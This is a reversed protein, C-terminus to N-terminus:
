LFVMLDFTLFFVREFPNCITVSDMGATRDTEIPMQSRVPERCSRSSWFPMTWKRSCMTKLPVRFREPTFDRPGRVGDASM